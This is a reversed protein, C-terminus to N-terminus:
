DDHPKLNHFYLWRLFDTSTSSALRVGEFDYLAGSDCSDTSLIDQLYTDDGIVEEPKRKVKISACNLLDRPYQLDDHFTKAFQTIIDFICSRRMSNLVKDLVVNKNILCTPIFIQNTNRYYGRLAM